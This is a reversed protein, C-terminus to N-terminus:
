STAMKRLECGRRSLTEDALYCFAFRDDSVGNVEDARNKAEEYHAGWYHIAAKAPQSGKCVRTWSELIERAADQENTSLDMENLLQNLLAGADGPFFIDLNRLSRLQSRRLFNRGWKLNKLVSM